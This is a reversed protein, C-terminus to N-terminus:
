RIQQPSNGPGTIFGLFAGAARFSVLVALAPLCAAAIWLHRRKLILPILTRIMLAPPMILCAALRIMREATSINQLRFGAISRSDHFHIMCTGQFGLSQVHEVIISDDARLKEGHSRLHQNFIWEMRGLEPITKPIVHRKYSVNAQLTVQKQEGSRLPSLAAGNVIFFSAWDMLTETAGNEVAGGIVSTDPYKRHVELIRECWNPRARCHDETIAVIEGRAHSMALARLYFVSAGPAKLWIIGPYLSDPQEPLGRATGDALIIEGGVDRVQHQLSNLCPGVEPWPQTTAIVVSLPVASRDQEM